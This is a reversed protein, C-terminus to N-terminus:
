LIDGHLAVDVILIMRAALNVMALGFTHKNCM